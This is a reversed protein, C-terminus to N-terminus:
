WVAGHAASVGGRRRRRRHAAARTRSWSAGYEDGTWGGRLRGIDVAM